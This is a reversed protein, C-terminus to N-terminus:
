RSVRAWRHRGAEGKRPAACSPKKRGDGDFRGRRDLVRKVSLVGPPRPMCGRRQETPVRGARRHVGGPLGRPNRLAELVGGSGSRSCTHANCVRGSARPRRRWRCIPFGLSRCLGRAGLLYSGTHHHQATTGGKGLGGHPGRTALHRTGGGPGQHGEAAGKCPSPWTVPHVPRSVTCAWPLPQTGRATRSPARRGAATETVRPRSNPHGLFPLDPPAKSTPGSPCPSSM